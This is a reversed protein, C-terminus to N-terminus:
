LRELATKLNNIIKKKIHEVDVATTPWTITRYYFFYRIRYFVFKFLGHVLLLFRKWLPKDMQSIEGRMDLSFYPHVPIFEEVLLLRKDHHDGLVVVPIGMAICPLACHLRSTVVLTARTKYMHLVNDAINMKVDHPFKISLNHKVYEIKENKLNRPLPVFTDLDVIFITDAKAAEQTTRKDFTLTLCYNFYADIGMANLMRETERDRCGIPSKEELYAISQKALMKNPTLYTSSIHLNSFVPVINKSLPFTEQSISFWGNIILIDGSDHAVPNDRNLYGKVGLGLSKIAHVAAITQIEDGINVSDPYKFSYINKDSLAQM